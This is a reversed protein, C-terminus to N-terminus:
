LLPPGQHERPNLNSKDSRHRRIQERGEGKGGGWGMGGWGLNPELVAPGFPSLPLAVLLGLQALVAEPRLEVPEHLGVVVHVRAVRVVVPRGLAERGGRQGGLAEGEEVRHVDVGQRRLAHEGRGAGDGGHAHRGAHHGRRHGADRAGAEVAEVVEVVQAARREVRGHGGGGAGIRRRGRRINVPVRTVRAQGAQSQFGLLM